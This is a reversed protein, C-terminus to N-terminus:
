GMSDNDEEEEELIIAPIDELITQRMEESGFVFIEEGGEEEEEEPCESIRPRRSLHSNISNVRPDFVFSARPSVARRTFHM